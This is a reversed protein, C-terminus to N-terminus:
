GPFPATDFFISFTEIRDQDVTFVEAVDSIFPEGSPSRLTYRTLVCARRGDVILDRVEVTEIMGYFGKISEIYADRGTIQEIPSAHSTFELDDALFEEWGDKKEWAALYREITDRTTM